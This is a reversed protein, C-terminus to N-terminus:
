SFPDTEVPAPLAVPPPPLPPMNTVGRAIMQRHYERVRSWEGAQAFASVAENLAKAEGPTIAGSATAGLVAAACEEATTCNDFLGVADLTRTAPLIRDSLIRLAFEEGEIAAQLVKGLVMDRVAEPSHGLRRFSDWLVSGGPPRGRRAPQLSSIGSESERM